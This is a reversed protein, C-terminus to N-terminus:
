GLPAPSATAAGESMADEDRRASRYFAFRFLTMAAMAIVLCPVVFAGASGQPLFFLAAILAPIALNAACWLRFRLRTRTSMRARDAAAHDVAADRGERDMRVVLAVLALIPLLIWWAGTSWVGAAIMAALIVFAMVDPVPSDPGVLLPLGLALVLLVMCAILILVQLV